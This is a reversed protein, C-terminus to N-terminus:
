VKEQAFQAFSLSISLEPLAVIATYLYKVKMDPFFEDMERDKSM